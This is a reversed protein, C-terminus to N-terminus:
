DHRSAWPNPPKLLFVGARLRLRVSTILPVAFADRKKGGRTNIQFPSPKFASRRYRSMGAYVAIAKAKATENHTAIMAPATVADTAPKNNERGSSGKPTVPISTISAVNFMAMGTNMTLKEIRTFQCWEVDQRLGVNANAKQMAAIRIVPGNEILNAGNISVVPAIAQSTLQQSSRSFPFEAGSYTM